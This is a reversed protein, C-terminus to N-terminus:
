NTPLYIIEMTNTNERKYNIKEVNITYNLSADTASPTIYRTIPITKQGETMYVIGFVGINVPVNKATTLSLQTILYFSNNGLSTPTTSYPVCIGARPTASAAFSPALLLNLSFRYYGTKPATFEGTSVDFKTYKDYMEENFMFMRINSGLNAGLFTDGVSDAPTVPAKYRVLAVLEPSRLKDIEIKLKDQNILQRWSAPATTSYQYLSNAHVDDISDTPTGANNYTSNYVILGNAPSTITTVDYRGTLNVNPLSVGKNSSVVDLVASSKPDKAGISVPGMLYSNDTADSGIAYTKNTTANSALLAYQNIKIGYAYNAATTGTASISPYGSAGPIELGTATHTKGADTGGTKAAQVYFARANTVIGTSTGSRGVSSTVGNLNEVTGSGVTASAKVGQFNTIKGSYTKGSTITGDVNYKFSGIYSDSNVAELNSILGSGYVAQGSYTGRKTGLTGSGIFNSSFTQGNNAVATSDTSNFSVLSVGNTPNVLNEYVTLRAPTTNLGIGTKGTQYINQTNTTAGTNTAVNYWPETASDAIRVWKSGDNYY